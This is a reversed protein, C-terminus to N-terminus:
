ANGSVRKKGTTKGNEAKAKPEPKPKAEARKTAINEAKPTYLELEELGNKIFGESRGSRAALWGWSSYEDAKLRAVNIAKLLAEDDKGEISPVEGEAVRYQMVLFAAKGPTIKLSQAVVSLKEDGEVYRSVVEATQEAHLAERAERKAEAKEAREAAAAAKAEADAASTDAKEAKAAPKATAGKRVVKKAVAM